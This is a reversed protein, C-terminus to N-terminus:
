EFETEDPAVLAPDQPHKAVEDHYSSAREFRLVASRTEVGDPSVAIIPLEYDGDPFAFRFSFSGDSRLRVTQGAISMTAGPDTAGYIILEANVNMWFNRERGPGQGQAPAPSTVDAGLFAQPPLLRSEGPAPVPMPVDPSSPNTQWGSDSLQATPWTAAVEGSSPANFQDPFAAPPAGLWSSPSTASFEGTTAALPNPASVTQGSRAHESTSGIGPMRALSSTGLRVWEDGHEGDRFYGLEARFGGGPRGCFVMWSTSEPHVHAITHPRDPQNEGFIQLALHGDISLSNFEKIHESGLDWTIHLWHPDRPTAFVHGTGYGAPLEAEEHASGDGELLIPPIQVTGAKTDPSDDSAEHM